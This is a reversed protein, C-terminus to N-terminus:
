KTKGHEEGLIDYVSNGDSKLHNIYVMVKSEGEDESSKEIIIGQINMDM